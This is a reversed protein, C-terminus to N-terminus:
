RAANAQGATQTNFTRSTPYAGPNLDKLREGTEGHAVMNGTRIAEDLEARVEARSKGAQHIPSAYREPYVQNLLLGSEDPAPMNGTRVAEALEAKVQERTKPGDAAFVQTASLAILAAAIATVHKRNM